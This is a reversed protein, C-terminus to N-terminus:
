EPFYRVQMKPKGKSAMWFAESRSRTIAATKPNKSSRYTPSMELTEFRGRGLTPDMELTEFHGRGLTQDMEETPFRSRGLTPDMEGTPFRGRGLTPDMEGTPKYPRIM